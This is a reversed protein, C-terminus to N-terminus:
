VEFVSGGAIDDWTTQVFYHPRFCIFVEENPDEIASMRVSIPLVTMSINGLTNILLCGCTKGTNFLQVMQAKYGQLLNKMLYPFKEALLPHHHQAMLKFTKM